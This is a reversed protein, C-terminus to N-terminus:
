AYGPESLQLSSAPGVAHLVLITFTATATATATATSAFNFIGVM